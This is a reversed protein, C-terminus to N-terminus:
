PVTKNSVNASEFTAMNNHLACALKLLPLAMAAGSAEGLRMNLKLLPRAQMADLIKQHGAEASEHSFILWDYVAKNIRIALLAAVSCIFGDVLVPIGLQACRLYSGTLAAIEFGGLCQLCHLPDRLSQYHYKLGRNIVDIKRQLGEANIGTGSGVLNEPAEELLFCALATASTTNGIGMEGGIYLDTGQAFSKDAIKKGIALAQQLQTETMAPKTCFNKTGNAIIHQQMNQHDPIIIATGLNIVQFDAELERALVNIAAGGQNFNQIMQVTVAQPFASVGEEAIGHDAAFVYISSHHIRPHVCAQLGALHIALDELQGLSGAPKTLSQQHQHAASKFEAAISKVNETLWNVPSSDEM